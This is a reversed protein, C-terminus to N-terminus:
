AAGARARFARPPQGTAARFVRSFYLQDSFGVLYAIEKISLPSRLLLGQAHRVRLRTLHRMPSTGLHSQFLRVLHSPSVQAHRAIRALDLKPDARREQMFEIARRVHPNQLGASRQAGAGPDGACALVQLLSAKLLLTRYPHEPGHYLRALEIYLNLLRDADPARRVLLRPRAAWAGALAPDSSVDLSICGYRFPGGAPRGHNGFHANALALDGVRLPHASLERAPDGVELRLGGETVLYLEVFPQPVTDLDSRFGPEAFAVPPAACASTWEALRRIEACFDEM